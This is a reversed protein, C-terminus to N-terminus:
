FHVQQGRDSGAILHNGFHFLEPTRDPDDEAVSITGQVTTDGPREV